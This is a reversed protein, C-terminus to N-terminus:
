VAAMVCQKMVVSLTEDLNTNNIAIYQQKKNSKGLEDFLERYEGTLQQIDNKSMEQKRSLIIDAPAYLFVNVNPKFVFYYCWRLIPKPLTINSRKSDIIFDFYYRDYLVTYGRLTYRFYIYYQGVIYDFYYYMFRILSSITSTNQGQRPLNQSTLNEAKKKGHKISSLIPLLSPRHRLVVTKQRYKKQLTVRVNELVTSKGAGDVGSFTVTIGKSNIADRLMDSAYRIKHLLKPIGKNIPQTYVQRLIKKPGRLKKDYLEDLLNISLDYKNCLYAFIESRDQFSFTSYYDRYRQPVDSDNVLNFLMIYEFNHHECALKLNGKKVAHNLVTESDLYIIGKREFRNILDIELYTGDHFYVSVFTVYSKRHLDVKEINEGKRIIDLFSNLEHKDILLDIDSTEPIESVSQYAFKLYAYRLDSIADLFYAIFIQRSNNM